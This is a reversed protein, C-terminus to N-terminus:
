GTGSRCVQDATKFGNKILKACAHFFAVKSDSASLLNTMVDFPLLFRNELQPASRQNGNDNFNSHM